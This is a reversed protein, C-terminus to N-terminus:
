NTNGSSFSWLANTRHTHRSVPGFNRPVQNSRRFVESSSSTLVSIYETGSNQLKEEANDILPYMPYETISYYCKRSEGKTIETSGRVLEATQEWNCQKRYRNHDEATKIPKRIGDIMVKMPWSSKLHLMRQPYQGMSSRASCRFNLSVFSVPLTISIAWKFNRIRVTSTFLCPVGISQPFHVTFSFM